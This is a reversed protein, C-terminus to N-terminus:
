PTVLEVWDDMVSISCGFMTQGKDLELGQAALIQECSCGATDDITYGEPRPGPGRRPAVTDFIGDIM